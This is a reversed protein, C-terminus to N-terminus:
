GVKMQSLVLVAVLALSGGVIAGGLVSKGAMAGIGAGAAAGIGVYITGVGVRKLNLGLVVSPTGMGLADKKLPDAIVDLVSLPVLVTREGAMGDHPMGGDIRTTVMPPVVGTDGNKVVGEITDGAKYTKTSRSPPVTINNWSVTFAEKFKYTM